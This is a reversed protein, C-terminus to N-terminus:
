NQENLYNHRMTYFLVKFKKKDSCLFNPYCGISFQINLDEDFNKLKSFDRMENSNLILPNIPFGYKTKKLSIPKIINKNNVTLYISYLPPKYIIQIIKELFNENTKISLYLIENNKKNVKINEIIIPPKSISKVNFEEVLNKKFTSLIKKNKQLLFMERVQIPSGNSDKVLAYNQIIFNQALPSDISGFLENVSRTASKLDYIIFDPLIKKIFNFDKKILYDNWGVFSITTPFSVYNFNNYAMVAPFKGFYAVKKDKIYNKFLDLSYKHKYKKKNIGVYEIGENKFFNIDFKKNIKNFHVINSLKITYIYNLNFIIFSFFYVIFFIMMLPAFKKKIKNKLTQM